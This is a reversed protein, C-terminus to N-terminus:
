EDWESRRTICRGRCGPPSYPRASSQSAPWGCWWASPGSSRRSSPQSSLILTPICYPAVPLSAVPLSAIAVVVQLGFEDLMLTLPTKMHEEKAAIIGEDIAGIETMAGTNTVLAYCGGSTVVTGSFVSNAKASITAVTVDLAAATKMVTNSEGTLSGEDVSFTSTKLALVRGDAPVRDGVRLFM